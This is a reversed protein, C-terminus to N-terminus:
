PRTLVFRGGIAYDPCDCYPAAPSTSDCSCDLPCSVCIQTGPICCFKSVNGLGIRGPLAVYRQPTAVEASRGSITKGCYRGITQGLTAEATFGPMRM